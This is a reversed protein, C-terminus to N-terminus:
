FYESLFSPNNEQAEFYYIGFLLQTGEPVPGLKSNTFGRWELKKLIRALKRDLRTKFGSLLVIKKVKAKSNFTINFLAFEKELTLGKFQELEDYLEGNTDFRINKPTSVNYGKLIELITEEKEIRETNIYPGYNFYVLGSCMGIRYRGKKDRYAYAFLETNVPIFLSCSSGMNDDSRGNIYIQDLKEGKYLDLVDIDSKYVEEASENLYM